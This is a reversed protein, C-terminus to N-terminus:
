PLGKAVTSLTRVMTRTPDDDTAEKSDEGVSDPKRIKSKTTTIVYIGNTAQQRKAWVSDWWVVVVVV